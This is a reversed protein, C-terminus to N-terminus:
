HARAAGAASLTPGTPFLALVAAPLRAPRVAGYGLSKRADDGAVPFRQGQDTILYTTGASVLAGRGPPVYVVDATRDDDGVVPVPRAGAPTASAALLVDTFSGDSGTVCVALRDTVRMSIPQPLRQPYGSEASGAGTRVAGALDASSVTLPHPTDGPYAQRDTVAGLVLSAETETVPRVGDARVLYYRYTSAGVYRTRLVQGVVTSQGGLKPGARGVQPVSVPRLDAGAPLVDVFSWTVPVPSVQDFGLAVLVSRDAVRYRQGGTLLYDHGAPDRLLIGATSGISQGAPRAGLLVTGVPAANAPRDAPQQSCMTWPGSLLADTGPLADPAGDIGLSAGRPAQRLSTASVSSTARGDGGALLRASAYNLMPHLRGDTGLVYNAGTDKEVVVQGSKRWDSSAGPRLLGYIGFSATVLLACAIGVASGIVLRRSPSVPHNADGAVLASVLRRRLFQYAQLQDRQTWM